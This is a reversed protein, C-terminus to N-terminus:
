SAGRAAPASVGWLIPFKKVVFVYAAIEAAIFGLTVLIEGVSPFYRWGNGPDFVTVYVDLRYLAGALLVMTAGRALTAPNAGRGAKRLLVAAAVAVGIEVWFLVAHWEPRLALPLRGRMAVDGLRLVVYVGTAGAIISSLRRLIPTELPRGFARSAFLSEAVVASYGMGLVTVLFLLPLLPTHWLEHLKTGAVLLLSGLSSQHMMPLVVGLALFAPLARRVVRLLKAAAGHAGSRELLAPSVEVWLVAMYAMVCLAVELLISSGNWRWVYLPVKWLNWFRGVDFVIAIAGVTYGFAGTLVAPRVLPHYEGRNLLYVLLAMAFGGSGLATGIVMDIAIWIGWPYGDNMATTAGLGLVFRVLGTIAGVAGLLLLLKLVPSVVPGGLAAPAGHEAHASASTRPTPLDM